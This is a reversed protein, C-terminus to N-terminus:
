KNVTIKIKISNETLERRIEMVAHGVMEVKNQM